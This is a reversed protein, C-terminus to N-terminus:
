EEEAHAELLPLTFSFTAGKGLGPSEAWIRGGSRQVLGKCIYLGLGTGPATPHDGEHVQSFPAFLKAIGRQSLGRGDDKVSVKAQDEGQQVTIRVHGGAPTFKLANTILNDLVQGIRTPDCRVPVFPVKDLVLEVGVDGALSGFAGVSGSVLAGLDVEEEQVDLRDTQLKASDLLDKVLHTLREVNRELIEVNRRQQVDPDNAYRNKFVQVQLKLPTLPTSLEHAAANIFNARAVNLEQVQQLAELLRSESDQLKAMAEETETIQKTLADNRQLLEKSVLDMSREMLERDDDNAQYAADVADLLPQMDDPVRDLDGFHKRVQRELLRHM